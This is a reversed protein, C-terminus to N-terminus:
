SLPIDGLNVDVETSLANFSKVAFGPAAIELDYTGVALGEFWFDGFDNTQTTLAAGGGAPKLTLKAGEVIEEAAPDYVTGGIFKKPM